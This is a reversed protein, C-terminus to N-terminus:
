VILLGVFLFWGWGDMGNYALIGAAVFCILAADRM